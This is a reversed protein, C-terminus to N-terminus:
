RGNMSRYLVRWAGFTSGSRRLFFELVSGVGHLFSDVVAFRYRRASQATMSERETVTGPVSNPREVLWLPVTQDKQRETLMKRGEYWVQLTRVKVPDHDPLTDILTRILPYVSLRFQRLLEPLWDSARIRHESEFEGRNGEEIERNRTEIAKAHFVCNSRYLELIRILGRQARPLKGRLEGLKQDLYAAVGKMRAVSGAVDESLLDNHMVFKEVFSKLLIDAIQDHVEYLALFEDRTFEIRRTGVEASAGEGNGSPLTRRQNRGYEYQVGKAQFPECGGLSYSDIRAQEM